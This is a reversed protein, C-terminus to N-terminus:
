QKTELLRSLTNYFAIERREFGDPIAIQNNDSIILVPSCEINNMRSFLLASSAEMEIASIDTETLLAQKVGPHNHFFSPVSVSTGSHYKCGSFIEAAKTQETEEVDIYKIGPSYYETIGDLCRIRTPLFLDGIEFNKDTGAFGVFYAEQTGGKALVHFIDILVSPGIINLILTKLGHETEVLYYEQVDHRHNVVRRGALIRDQIESSSTGACLITTNPLRERRYYYELWKDM